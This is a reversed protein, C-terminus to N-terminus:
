VAEQLKNLERTVDSKSSKHFHGYWGCSYECHISYIETAEHLINICHSQLSLPLLSKAYRSCLLSQPRSSSAQCVCSHGPNACTSRAHLRHRCLGASDCQTSLLHLCVHSPEVFRAAPIAAVACDHLRNQAPSVGDPCLM